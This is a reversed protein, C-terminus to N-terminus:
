MKVVQSELAALDLGLHVLIKELARHKCDRKANTRYIFLELKTQFVLTSSENAHVLWIVELHAGVRSVFEVNQAQDRYLMQIEQRMSSILYQQFIVQVYLIFVLIYVIYVSRSSPSSGAM